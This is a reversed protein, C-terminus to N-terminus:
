IRVAKWHISLVVHHGARVLEVTVAGRARAAVVDIDRITDNDFRYGDIALLEDGEAIGAVRLPSSLPLGHIELADVHGAADHVPLSHMPFVNAAVDTWMGLPTALPVDVVTVDLGISELQKARAFLTKPDHSGAVWARQPFLASETREARHPERKQASAVKKPKTQAHTHAHALALAAPAIEVHGGHGVAHLAYSGTALAAGFAAALLMEIRRKPPAREEACSRARPPDLCSSSAAPSLALRYPNM